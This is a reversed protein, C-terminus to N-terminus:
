GNAQLQPALGILLKSILFFLSDYPPDITSDLM